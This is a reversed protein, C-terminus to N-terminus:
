CRITNLIQVGIRDSILLWFFQRTTLTRTAAAALSMCYGGAAPM